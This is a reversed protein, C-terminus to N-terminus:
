ALKNLLSLSHLPARELIMAFRYMCGPARGLVAVRVPVFESQLSEWRVRSSMILSCPFSTKM